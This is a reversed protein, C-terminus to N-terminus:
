EAYYQALFVDKTRAFIERFDYQRQKKYTRLDAGVGVATIGLKEAIFLARHLHYTQTVILIRKGKYAEMLNAISEYTSYGKPDILIKEEPVGFNKAEQQMAGVEDYDGSRDGSMLIYDALGLRYLDIGTVIRDQLMHSPTGNPLVACGLVLILDFHEGEKTLAEATTIQPTTKQRVAASIALVSAGLFVFIGLFLALWPQFKQWKSSHLREETCKEIQTHSKVAKKM